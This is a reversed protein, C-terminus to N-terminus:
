PYSLVKVGSPRHTTAIQNTVNDAADPQAM